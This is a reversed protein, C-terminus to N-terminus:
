ELLFTIKIRQHSLYSFLDRMGILWVSISLEWITRMQKLIFIKTIILHMSSDKNNHFPCCVMKNRNQKIGYHELVTLISLQEKIKQITM